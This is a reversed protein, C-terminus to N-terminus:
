PSCPVDPSNNLSTCPNGTITVGGSARLANNIVQTVGSGIIHIGESATVNNTLVTVDGAESVIFVDDGSAIMSSRVTVNNSFSFVAVDTLESRNSIIVSGFIRISGSSELNKNGCDVNTPDVLSSNTIDITRFGFVDSECANIRTNRIILKNTDGGQFTVRKGNQFSVNVNHLRLTVGEAVEIFCEQGEEEERQTVSENTVTTDETVTITADGEEVCPDFFGAWAVQTGALLIGAALALRSLWQARGFSSMSTEGRTTKCSGQHFDELHM